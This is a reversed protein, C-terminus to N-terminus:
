REIIMVGSVALVAQVERLDPNIAEESIIPWDRVPSIAAVVRADPMGVVSNISRKPQWRILVRLREGGVDITGVYVGYPTDDTLDHGIKLPYPGQVDQIRGEFSRHEFPAPKAASGILASDNSHDSIIVATPCGPFEITVQEAKSQVAVRVLSKLNADVTGGRQCIQQFEVHLGEAVKEAAAPKPLVFYGLAVGASVIISGITFLDALPGTVEKMDKVFKPLLGFRMSGREVDALFIDVAGTPQRTALDNYLARLSGALKDLFAPDLLLERGSPNSFEIVILDNRHM